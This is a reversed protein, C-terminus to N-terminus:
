HWPKHRRHFPINGSGSEGCVIMSQNTQSALMNYYALQSVSFVHPPLDNNRKSGSRRYLSIVRPAYIDVHQYPNVALLV